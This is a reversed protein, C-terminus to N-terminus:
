LFSTLDAQLLVVHRPAGGALALLRERGARLMDASLDVLVTPRGSRAHAAATSVLTGCGADLVPGQGHRVAREAFSAYSAPSTGWAVRNYLGNGILRDYLRARGDYPQSPAGAPLASWVGDGLARLTADSRVIGALWSAADLFAARGPLPTSM